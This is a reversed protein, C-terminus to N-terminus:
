NERVIPKDTMDFVITGGNQIDKHYFWSNKLKKDNITVSKVYINEPSANPASITLIKNNSMKMTVKKFLPGNLYYIDQGANPFFGMSSFM